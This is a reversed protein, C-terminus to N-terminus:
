HVYRQPVSWWGVVVFMFRCQVVHTLAPCQDFACDIEERDVQRFPRTTQQHVPDSIQPLDYAINAPRMRELDDSPDNQRLMQVRDPRERFAVAFIRHTPAQDLCIERTPDGAALPTARAPALLALPADPLPSEPLVQDPIIPIKLPMDIIHMVIRHLM